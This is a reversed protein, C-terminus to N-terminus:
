VWMELRIFHLSQGYFTHQTKRWLILQHFELGYNWGILLENTIWKAHSKHLEPASSIAFFPTDHKKMWRINCKWKYQGSKHSIKEGSGLRSTQTSCKGAWIELCFFFWYWDKYISPFFSFCTGYWWERGSLLFKLPFTKKKNYWNRVSIWHAFFHNSEISCVLTLIIFFVRKLRQTKIAKAPQKNSTHM